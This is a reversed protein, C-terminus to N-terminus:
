SQFHSDEMKPDFIAVSGFNGDNTTNRWLQPHCFKISTGPTSLSSTCASRRPRLPRPTPYPLGPHTRGERQCHIKARLTSAGPFTYIGRQEEQRITDLLSEASYAIRGLNSAAHHGRRLREYIASTSPARSMWAKYENSTFVSPSRRSGQPHTEIRGLGKALLFANCELKAICYEQLANSNQM